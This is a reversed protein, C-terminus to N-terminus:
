LIISTVFYSTIISNRPLDVVTYRPSVRPSLDQLAAALSRRLVSSRVSSPRTKLLRAGKKTGEESFLCGLNEKGSFQLPRDHFNMKQDSFDFYM